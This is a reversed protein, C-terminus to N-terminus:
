LGPKSVEDKSESRYNGLLLSGMSRVPLGGSMSGVGVSTDTTIRESL